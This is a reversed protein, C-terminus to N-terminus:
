LTCIKQYASRTRRFLIVPFAPLNILLALALLLSLVIVNQKSGHDPPIIDTLYDELANISSPPVLYNETITEQSESMKDAGLHSM